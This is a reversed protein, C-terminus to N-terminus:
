LDRVKFTHESSKKTGNYKADLYAHVRKTEEDLKLRSIIEKALKNFVVYCMFFGCLIFFLIFFTFSVTGM